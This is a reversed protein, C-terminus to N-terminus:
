SRHSHLRETNQLSTFKTVGCHAYEFLEDACLSFAVLGTRLLCQSLAATRHVYTFRAFQDWSDTTHSLTQPWIYIISAPTRLLGSSVKRERSVIIANIKYNGNRKYTKKKFTWHRSIAPFSLFPLTINWNRFKQNGMSLPIEIFKMTGKARKTM